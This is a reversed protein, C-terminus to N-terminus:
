IKKVRNLLGQLGQSNPGSEPPPGSRDGAQKLLGGGAKQDRMIKDLSLPIKEKAIKKERARLKDFFPGKKTKFNSETIDLYQQLNHPEEFKKEKPGYLRRQKELSLNLQDIMRDKKDFFDEDLTKKILKDLETTTDKPTSKVSKDILAQIGKRLSGIKFGARGGKALNAVGGADAISQMQQRRIDEEAGKNFIDRIEDYAMDENYRMDGIGPQRQQMGFGLTFPSYVGKDALMTDIEKNSLNVMDLQPYLAKMEEERKKLRQADATASQPLFMREGRKAMAFEEGKAMEKAIEAEKDVQLKPGLIYKNILTDAFAQKYPVGEQLTQNLPIALDIAVETALALPGLAGKIFKGATAVKNGFKTLTAKAAKDGQSAKQTYENIARQYSQADNCNVGKSLSCKLEPFNKKMFAALGRVNAKPINLVARGSPFIEKIISQGEKTKRFKALNERAINQERLNKFVEAALGAQTKKTIPTTGFDLKKTSGKGINVGITDAFNEITKILKKDRNPNLLAKDYAMSLSQKFGRNYDRSIPTVYLLEQASAGSGKLFAKSLPHDLDLKLNEPLKNTLKNYESLGKIAATFKKPDDGYANKILISMNETQVNKLGKINAFNDLFSDTTEFNDPLWSKLTRNGRSDIDFEPGKGIAVNQAYVNKLLKSAEKTIAKKTMKFKKAMSEVTANKNNLIEDFLEKQTQVKKLATKSLQLSKGEDKLREAENYVEIMYRRNIGLSKALANQEKVTGNYIINNLMTKDQANLVGGADISGKTMRAKRTKVKLKKYDKNIFLEGIKALRAEKKAINGAQQAESVPAFGAMKQKAYGPRSGDASPKVLMGGDMMPNRKMFDDIAERDLARQPRDIKDATTVEGDFLDMLEIIKDQLDEM